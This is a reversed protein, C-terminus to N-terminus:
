LSLTISSKSQSSVEASDISSNNTSEALIYYFHNKSTASAYDQMIFPFDQDSVLTNALMKNEDIRIESLQTFQISDVIVKTQESPFSQKIFFNVDHIQLCIIDLGSTIFIAQGM